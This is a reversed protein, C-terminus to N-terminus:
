RRSVADRFFEKCMRQLKKFDGSVRRADITTHFPFVIIVVICVRFGATMELPKTWQGIQVWVTSASTTEVVREM